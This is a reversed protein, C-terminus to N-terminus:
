QAPPAATPSPRVATARASPPQETSGPDDGSPSDTLRDTPDGPLTVEISQQADLRRGDATVYRVYLKLASHAPPSQPWPLEFHMGSGLPTDRFHSAAEDPTFDWRAVRAARGQEAPDLVVVSVEGPMEVLLGAASHPEVVVRVGDDGPQGDANHGGTLRENLKIGVIKYEDATTPRGANTRATASNSPPPLELASGAEPEVDGPTEGPPLPNQHPRAARVGADPPPVRRGEPINPDPPSIEPPGQYPPAQELEGPLEVEPPALARDLHEAPERLNRGGRRRPQSSAPTRSSPVTGQRCAELEDSLEKNATELEYVQDELWRLEQELLEQNMRWRCGATSIVALLACVTVLRKM